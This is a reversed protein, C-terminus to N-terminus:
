TIMNKYSVKRPEAEPEGKVKNEAIPEALIEDNEQLCGYVCFDVKLIFFTVLCTM